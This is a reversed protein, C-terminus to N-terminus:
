EDSGDGGVEEFGNALLSGIIEPYPARLPEGAEVRTWRVKDLDGAKARKFDALTAPFEAGVKSVFTRAM